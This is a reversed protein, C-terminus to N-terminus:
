RHRLRDYCWVTGLSLTVPLILLAANFAKLEPPQSLVQIGQYDFLVHACALFVIWGLLCLAASGPALLRLAAVRTLLLVTLALVLGAIWWMNQIIFDQDSEGTLMGRTSLAAYIVFAVTVYLIKRGWFLSCSHLCFFFAILTFFGALAVVATGIRQALTADRLGDTIRTVRSWLPGLDDYLPGSLWLSAAMLGFGVATVAGLSGLQVGALQATGLGRTSEFPNMYGGSTARRNVIGMGISTFFLAVPAATALYGSIAVGSLSSALPLLPMALAFLAGLALVPIGYRKYELWLEAGWPSDGPGPVSFLDRCIEIPGQFSRRTSGAKARHLVAVRGWPESQRQLRVGFVTLVYLLSALLVLQAYESGSLAIVDPIHVRGGQRAGARFHFPQMWNLLQWGAVLALILATSRKLGSPMIWSGAAFLMATMGILAGGALLPLPLGYVLRGLLVPIVYLSICLVGLTLMPVGTLMASTVPMRFEFRLPFGARSGVALAVLPTFMALFMNLLIALPALLERPNPVRALGRPALDMVTFHVALAAVLILLYWRRSLRWCHWALAIAPHKV